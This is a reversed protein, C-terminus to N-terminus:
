DMTMHNGLSTNCTDSMMQRKELLSGPKAFSCIHAPWSALIAEVVVSGLAFRGSIAHARKKSCLGAAADSLREPALGHKKHKQLAEICRYLIYALLEGDHLAHYHKSSGKAVSKRKM